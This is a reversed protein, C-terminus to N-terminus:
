EAGARRRRVAMLVGGGALIVVAGGGALYPTAGNGGTAALDTDDATDEAGADTTDEGTEEAPEFDAPPQDCGIGDADRDLHSGYHEDGEAINAYGNAYAESCNEFPHTGEHAQAAGATVALAFAAAALAAPIRFLNM